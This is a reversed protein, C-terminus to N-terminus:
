KKTYTETDNNLTMTLATGSVSYNGALNIGSQLAMGTHNM